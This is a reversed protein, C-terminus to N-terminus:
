DEQDLIKPVIWRCVRRALVFFVSFLVMVAAYKLPDGPILAVLRVALYFFPACFLVIMGLIFVIM